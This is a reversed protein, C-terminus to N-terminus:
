HLDLDGMTIGLDALGLVLQNDNLGVGVNISQLANNLTEPTYNCYWRMSEELDTSVVKIGKKVSMLKLWIDDAYPAIAMIKRTDLVEESFFGKPYLVGGVGTAFNNHSPHTNVKEKVWHAYSQIEVNSNTIEHCRNAIVCEPYLKHFQLLKEVMIHPYIVDDDVTIVPSSMNIEQMFYFKNYQFYNKEVYKIELIGKKQLDKINKPVWDPNKIESLALFLIVKKPKVTQTFLSEIVLHLSPFRSPFSTLSIIIDSNEQDRLQNELKEIRRKEKYELEISKSKKITKQYDLRDYFDIVDQCSKYFHFKIEDFREYEKLAKWSKELLGWGMELDIDSKKARIVFVDLVLMAVVVRLKKSPGTLIRLIYAIHDKRPSKKFDVLIAADASSIGYFDCISEINSERVKQLNTSIGMDESRVSIIKNWTIINKGAKSIRSLQDSDSDTKGVRSNFKFESLVEKKGFASQHCFGMSTMNFSDVGGFWPMYLDDGLTGAGLLVDCQFNILLFEYVDRLVRSSKFKDGSNMFCIYSGNALDIGKNMADYVGNDKEKIYRINFGNRVWFSVIEDTEDSSDGDVIIYEFLVRDQSLVSQMTKSLNWADEYTVTVITFFPVNM